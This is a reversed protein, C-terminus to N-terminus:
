QEIQRKLEAISDCIEKSANQSFPTGGSWEEEKQTDKNDMVVVDAAWVTFKTFLLLFAVIFCVVIRKITKKDFNFM